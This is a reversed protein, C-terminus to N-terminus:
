ETAEGKLRKIEAELENVRKVLEQIMMTNLMTFEEYRLGYTDGIVNGEDDTDHYKVYGAFDQTSIGNDDLAEKVDQAIAGIHYRGSEGDNYKYRCPKLDLVFQKYKSLDYDISNKKSKDSTLATGNQTISTVRFNIQDSLVNVQFSSSDISSSVYLKCSTSGRMNTTSGNSTFVDGPAKIQVNGSSLIIQSSSSGGSYYWSSYNRASTGGLLLSAYNSSLLLNTDANLKLATGYNGVAIQAGKTGDEVTTSTINLYDASSNGIKVTNSRVEDATVTGDINVSKVHMDCTDTDLVAGDKLLQFTSTKSNSSVSLTIKGIEASVESTVIDEVDDSDVKGRVEASISDISQSLTSYSSSIQSQLDDDTKQMQGVTTEFGDMTQELTSYKGDVENRIETKIEDAQQSVISKVDEESTKRGVETRIEDAAVKFDSYDGRLTRLQKDTEALNSGYSSSLSTQGGGIDIKTDSPSLLDYSISKIPYYEDIGMQPCVVRVSQGARLDLVTDDNINADSATLTTSVLQLKLADLYAQARDKLMIPVPIGDDKWITAHVGYKAELAPDNIYLVGDNAAAITVDDKGLPYIRTVLNDDNTVRQVDTLNIGVMITQTDNREYDASWSLITGSAGYRFYFRGGYVKIAASMIDSYTALLTDDELISMDTMTQEIIPDLTVNILEMSRVMYNILQGDTLSKLPSASDGSGSADLIYRSFDNLQDYAAFSVSGDFNEEASTIRGVFLTSTQGRTLTIPTKGIIISNLVDLGDALKFDLEAAGNLTDKLSAETLGYPQEMDSAWLLKGDASCILDM